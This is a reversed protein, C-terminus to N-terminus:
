KYSNLIKREATMSMATILFQTNSWDKFSENLYKKLKKNPDTIAITIAKDKTSNSKLLENRRTKAPSSAKVANRKGPMEPEKTRIIRPTYPFIVVAIFSMSTINKVGKIIPIAIDKRM